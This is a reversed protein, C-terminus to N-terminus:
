WLAHRTARCRPAQRRKGPSGEGSNLFLVVKRGPRFLDPSLHPEKADATLSNAVVYHSVVISSQDLKGKLSEVPEYEVLQMAAFMGSWYGPPSFVKKVTAIAVFESAKAGQAMHDKSCKSSVQALAVVGLLGVVVFLRATKTM